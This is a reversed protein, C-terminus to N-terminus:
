EKLVTFYYTAVEKYGGGRVAASLTILYDGESLRTAPVGAVIIKEDARQWARLNGSKWLSNGEVTKVDAQYTNGEEGYLRLELKLLQIENSLKVRNIHGQDRVAGPLIILSAIRSIINEQHSSKAQKLQVLEQEIRSAKDQSQELQQALEENRKKQEDLLQRLEEETQSLSAQQKRMQERTRSNEVLLIMTSAILILITATLFTVVAWGRRQGFWGIIAPPKAADRDTSSVDAPKQNEAEIIYRNLSQAFELKDRREPASLFHREFPAREDESLEGRVYEDILIEEIKLFLNFYQHNTMLQQEVQERELDTVEGLLYRRVLIEDNGTLNMAGEQEQPV